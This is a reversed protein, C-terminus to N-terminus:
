PFRFYVNYLCYFDKLAALCCVCRFVFRFRITNMLLLFVAAYVLTVYFCFQFLATLKLALWYISLFFYPVVLTIFCHKKFLVQSFILVSEIGRVVLVYTAEVVHRQTVTNQKTATHQRHIHKCHELWCPKEVAKAPANGVSCNQRTQFFGQSAKTFQTLIGKQHHWCCCPTQLQM